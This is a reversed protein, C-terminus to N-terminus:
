FVTENMQERRDGKERELYACYFIGELIYLLDRLMM